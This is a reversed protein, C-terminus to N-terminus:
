PVLCVSCGCVRVKLRASLSTGLINVHLTAFGSCDSSLLVGLSLSHTKISVFAVSWGSSDAGFSCAVDALALTRVPEGADDRIAIGVGGCEGRALWPAHSVICQTPNVGCQVRLSERLKCAADSPTPPTLLASVDPLSDVGEFLRAISDLTDSASESTTTCTACLQLLCAVFAKKTDELEEEKMELRKDVAISHQRAACAFALVSQQVAGVAESMAETARSTAVTLNADLRRLCASGEWQSFQTPSASTSGESPSFSEDLVIEAPCDTLSLWPLRPPVLRM